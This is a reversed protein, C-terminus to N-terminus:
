KSREPAVPKTDQPVTEWEDWPRMKHVGYMDKTLKCTRCILEPIAEGAGKVFAREWKGGCEPCPIDGVTPNEEKHLRELVAVVYGADIPTDPHYQSFVDVARALGRKASM